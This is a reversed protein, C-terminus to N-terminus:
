SAVIAAAPILAQERTVMGTPLGRPGTPWKELWLHVGTITDGVQIADLTINIQFAPPMFTLFLPALIPTNAAWEAESRGINWEFAQSSTNATLVLGAANRCYTVGRANVYDISVFRNAANADTSVVCRAALLREYHKGGVTHSFNSGAAPSAPDEWDIYALGHGFPQTLGETVSM